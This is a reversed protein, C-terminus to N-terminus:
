VSATAPPSSGDDDGGFMDALADLDLDDAPEMYWLLGDEEGPEDMFADLGLAELGDFEPVVAALPPPPPPRVAVVRVGRSKKPKPEAAAAAPTQPEAAALRNKRKKSPPKGAAIAELLAAAAAERSGRREGKAPEKANRGFTTVNMRVNALRALVLAETALEALRVGGDGGWAVGPCCATVTAALFVSVPGAAALASFWVRGDVHGFLARGEPDFVCLSTSRQLYVLRQGSVFDVRYAASSGAAQLPELLDELVTNRPAAVWRGDLGCTYQQGAELHGDADDFVALETLKKFKNPETVRLNATVAPLLPRARVTALNAEPPCVGTGLVGKDTDFALLNKCYTIWSCLLPRDTRTAHELSCM